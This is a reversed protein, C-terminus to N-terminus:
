KNEEDNIEKDILSHVRERWKKYFLERRDNSHFKLMHENVIVRTDVNIMEKLNRAIIKAQFRRYLMEFSFGFLTPSFIVSLVKAFIRSVFHTQVEKVFQNEYSNPLYKKVWANAEYFKQYTNDRDFIPLLQAVWYPSYIDDRHMMINQIDLVEESIFFSFCFSDRSNQKTPRLGLLHVVFIILFRAVWIKDKQVIVFFDIDSDEGTNSYALTNCIAIMKVFPLYRYFRVLLLARNFKREALNNHHKRILHTYERDKLSYFAETVSLKSKLYESSALIDKIEYLSVVRGPRYLWKWIEEATLPYNFVDFFAVTKLIAQEIVPRM